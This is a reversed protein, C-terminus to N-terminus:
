SIPSGIGIGSRELLFGGFTENESVIANCAKLRM